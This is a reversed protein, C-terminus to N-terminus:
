ISHCKKFNIMFIIINNNNNNNEIERENIM